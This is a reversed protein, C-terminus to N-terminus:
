VGRKDIIANYNCLCLYPQTTFILFFESATSTICVAARHANTLIIALPLITVRM